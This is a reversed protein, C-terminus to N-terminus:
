IPPPIPLSPYEESIHSTPPQNTLNHAGGEPNPYSECVCAFVCLLYLYHLANPDANKSSQRRLYIICQLTFSPYCAMCAFVFVRKPTHATGSTFRNLQIRHHIDVNKATKLHLLAPYFWVVPFYLVSCLSVNSLKLLNQAQNHALTEIAVPANQGNKRKSAM